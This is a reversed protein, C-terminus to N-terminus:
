GTCPLPPADPLDLGMPIHARSYTDKVKLFVKVAEARNIADFPRFVRPNGASRALDGSLVGDATLRLIAARNETLDQIYALKSREIPTDLAPGPVVGSSLELVPDLDTYPNSLYLPGNETAGLGYIDSVMRAMEWRRIPRDADFTCGAISAGQRRAIWYYICWWERCRSPSNQQGTSASSGDALFFFKHVDIGAVAIEMKLAQAVTLKDSPGFRGTLDGLPSKYGSAIGLAAARLVYPAFWSNDPVDLFGTAQAFVGQRGVFLLAIVLLLQSRRM